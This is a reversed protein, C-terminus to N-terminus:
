RAYRQVVKRWSRAGPEERDSANLSLSAGLPLWPSGSPGAAARLVRGRESRCGRGEGASRMRELLERSSCCIGGRLLSCETVVYRSTFPFATRPRRAAAGARRAAACGAGREERLGRRAAGAAAAPGVGAGFPRLTLALRPARGSRSLRRHTGLGAAVLRAWCGGASGRPRAAGRLAGRVCVCVCVYMCVPLRLLKACRGWSVPLRRGRPPARGPQRRGGLAARRACGAPAPCRRPLLLLLNRRAAREERRRREEEKARPLRLLLASRHGRLTRMDGPGQAGRM